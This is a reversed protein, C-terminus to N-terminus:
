PALETPGSLQFEARVGRKEVFLNELVHEREVAELSSGQVSAPAASGSGLASDGLVLTAGSTVIVAHEILTRLSVFIGPGTTRSWHVCSGRSSNPRDAERNKGSVERHFVLCAAPHEERQDRLAPLEIPFVRLRYYFVRASAGRWSARKWNGIRPPSSACTSRRLRPPVSVSSRVKRSLGYFSRKSISPSTEM